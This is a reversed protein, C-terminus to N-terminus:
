VEEAQALTESLGIGRWWLVAIGFAVFSVWFVAHSLIAFAGATAKSVGFPGLAGTAAAHYVGLAGPAAPIAVAAGVWVLVTVAARALEGLSEFEIGLALVAAAFPITSCVLWLVASHWIVWAISAGGRMGALGEALGRVLRDIPRAVRVPLIAYTIRAVFGLALEPQVRLAVLFLVPIAVLTSLTALVVAPDLGPIGYTWIVFAALALVFAADFVREVVVTGFLATASVGTERSLYWARVLEGIRLPVVNNVMFGVATARFVPATELEAVNAALHRWRLARVWLGILYAPVSPLILIWWNAQAIAAGLEQASFGRFFVALALVSIVVGIWVRRDTFSLRSSRPADGSADADSGSM